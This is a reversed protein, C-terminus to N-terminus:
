GPPTADLASALAEREPGPALPLFVSVRETGGVPLAMVDLGEDEVLPSEFPKAELEGLRYLSAVPRGAADGIVALVDGAALMWTTYPRRRRLFGRSRPTSDTVAVARPEALAGLGFGVLEAHAELAARFPPPMESPVAARTARTFDPAAV